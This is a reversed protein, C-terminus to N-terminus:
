KKLIIIYEDEIIGSNKNRKTMMGRSRIRDVLILEKKFGIKEGIKSLIEHNKILEGCVKNNGIIFILYRNKKLVRYAEKMVKEMELFYKIMIRVRMSNKRKIRDLKYKPILITEITEKSSVKETGINEKDLVSISLEDVLDLWYLELMTSRVYKQAAIYPPSSIVLGVSKDKIKKSNHKNLIGRGMLKGRKMETSNDWIIDCGIKNSYIENVRNLKMIRNTNKDIAKKFYEMTKPYKKGRIIEKIKEQNKMSDKLKLRVPPPIFPDAYSAKRIISSFCVWFFDRMDKDRIEKICRKIKTLDIQAKKSFWFDINKFKKIEYEDIEEIRSLLKKKEKILRKGNLPTLKVKSILRALPNIEIGLCNRKINENVLCELLITASGMFCDMVKENKPCFEETSLFYIPIYALVKAPYNHIQHTYVDSRKAWKWGSCARRFNFRIPRKNREFNKKLNKKEEKADM